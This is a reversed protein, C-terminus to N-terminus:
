QINYASMSESWFHSAKHVTCMGICTCHYILEGGQYDTVPVIPISGYWVADGPGGLVVNEDSVPLDRM